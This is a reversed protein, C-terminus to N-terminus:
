MHNFESEMHEGHTPQWPLTGSSFQQDHLNVNHHGQQASLQSSYLFAAPLHYNNNNVAQMNEIM